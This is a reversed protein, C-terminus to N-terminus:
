ARGRTPQIGFTKIKQYLSSRSIGLRQAATDVRGEEEELVLLIHKKELDAITHSTDVVSGSAPAPHHAAEFRLDAPEIVADDSLLLAREVVNRLERINGPWAYRCLAEVSAPSLRPKQRGLDRSLIDIFHAALAEIDDTRKRLPPLELRFTSIRFYLDNRFRGDRAQTSLDRHTACILRVDLKRDRVEGLRRFTKEEVVKLLKAQVLLDMDGVEDLFVTGHQAVELLGQKAAVAGTFAGREYGFLESELLERTLGACNLDVFPEDARPSNDHIWRALVGKGTGTEGQLLVPSDSGGVRRAEEYVQRIAPTQGVFASRDPSRHKARAVADRKRTRRNGAMRDVLLRLAALEVPKTIFQEAGAKIAEVALDISGHATLMIIACEPDLYKLEPIIELSDCDPLRYDLIIVDPSSARMAERAARCTSAQIVGYGAADLHKTIAFRIVEEDDVILVTANM